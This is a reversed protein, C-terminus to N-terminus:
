DLVILMLDGNLGLGSESMELKCFFKVACHQYGLM